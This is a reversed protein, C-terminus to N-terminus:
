FDYDSVDTLLDMFLAEDVRRARRLTSEVWYWGDGNIDRLLPRMVSCEKGNVITYTKYAPGKGVVFLLEHSLMRGVLDVRGDAAIIRSGIPVVEGVRLGEWSIRLAPVDYRGVEEENLTRSTHEIQFGRAGCWTVVDALLANVRQTFVERLRVQEEESEIM